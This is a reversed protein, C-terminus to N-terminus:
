IAVGAQNAILLDSQVAEVSSLVVWSMQSANSVVIWVRRLVQYEQGIMVQKRWQGDTGQVLTSRFDLQKEFPPLLVQADLAEIAGRLIGDFALYPDGDRDVHHHRDDLFLQIQLRRQM